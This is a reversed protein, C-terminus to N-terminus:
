DKSIGVSKPCCLFIVLVIAMSQISPVRLAYDVLAAAALLLVAVLTPLRIDARHGKVLNRTDRALFARVFWYIAILLIAVSPLGGTMLLEVWDNHAHNFYSMQLLKDPEFIRYVDPFSGFGSGFLWYTEIMSQVTAWAQVRLDAGVDQSVVRTFATSRDSLWLATGLLAALLLPPAYLFIRRARLSSAPAGGLRDDAQRDVRSQWTSAVMVYGVAFAAMSAILGARSGILVTMVVLFIGALMLLARMYGRQRRRQRMAEDRLLMAVVPLMCALFVAHHNRNSFLGVMMGSNTIRYLYAASSSGSLVQLIGLLASACAVAVLAFMIRPYEEPAVRAALLLAALPVTMALLSNWTQSPTLSIPRWLDSYGLLRDITVVAERGPLGHWMAPPLPVLQVAMWVAMALLLALPTRIRRWDEKEMGTAAWFAFLVSLGRLLPLSTIDSRSGGGVLFVFVLFIILVSAATPTRFRSLTTTTEVRSRNSM